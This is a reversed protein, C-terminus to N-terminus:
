IWYMRHVCFTDHGEGEVRELIAYLYVRTDRVYAYSVVSFRYASRATALWAQFGEPLEAFKKGYVSALITDWDRRWNLQQPFQEKIKELYSKRAQAEQPLPNCGLLSCVSHSFLLPNFSYKDGETHVTFTDYLVPINKTTVQKEGFSPLLFRRDDFVRFAEHLTILQSPDDFYPPEQAVQEFAPSIEASVGLQEFKQKLQTIATQAQQTLQKNKRDFLVSLPIKGEEPAIYLYLTGDIGDVEQTFEFAQWRNVYSLIHLIYPTQQQQGNQEQGQQQQSEKKQPQALQSKALELGSQCLARAYVRDQAFRSFSQATWVRQLASIVIMSLGM